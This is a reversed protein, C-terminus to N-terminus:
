DFGTTSTRRTPTSKTGELKQGTIAEIIPKLSDPVFQGAVGSAMSNLREGLLPVMDPYKQLYDAVRPFRTRLENIIPYASMLDEGLHKDLQKKKKATSGLLQAEKRQMSLILEDPNFRVLRILVVLLVITVLGLGIEFITVFDM